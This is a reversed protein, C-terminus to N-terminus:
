AIAKSSISSLISGAVEKPKFSSGDFKTISQIKEPHNIYNKILTALQGQYNNEVVFVYDLQDVFEQLDDELIPWITRIQHFRVDISKEALQQMAEIIPGYTSGFGIIGIKASKPGFTRGKPLDKKALELKMMRKRMMRLRNTKDTSVSGFENHENGTVQSEGGEQSPISRFSIGDETFEYRKYASLKGLQEENVLKGRDIIIKSLDFPEISASNQCLAQDLLLFVPLQYKEALNMAESTMFFCEDATGPAVVLRPFEGHSSYVVHNVDSQENKTPEGTSPGVRQCQAVVIPVEAEGAHGVGETMLSQGPGSTAVMVRAGAYAAGIGMNIVALEDEAQKVVGGFKPLRPTLWEMIDTAPTIPYGIFFRGGSVLFGFAAAENGTSLIRQSNDGHALSYRSGPINKTAFEFGMQLAKLNSDLAEKGRRAYRSNLVKILLADELGILRGLIAFAITNKFINRRLESAAMNGLPAQYVSFGPKKFKESLQGKSSDFIIIPTESLELLGAQVAEEDFAVLIDVSDGICYIDRTSGRIVGDAPGGRIRSLVNRADYINLGLDRFVRGLLNVVTLTGDGGQGGIMITIDNKVASQLESEQELKTAM